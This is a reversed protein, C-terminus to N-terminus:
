NEYKEVNDFSMIHNLEKKLQIKFKDIEWVYVNKFEEFFQLLEKNESCVIILKDPNFLYFFYIFDTFDYLVIFSAKIVFGNEINKKIRMIEYGKLQKKLYSFFYKKRDYVVVKGM